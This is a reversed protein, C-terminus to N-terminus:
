IYFKEMISIRKNQFLSKVSEAGLCFYIFSIPTPSKPEITSAKNQIPRFNAPAYQNNIRQQQQQVFGRAVPENRAAEVRAAQPNRNVQVRDVFRALSTLTPTSMTTNPPRVFDDVEFGLLYAFSLEVNTLGYIINSPPPNRSSRGRQNNYQQQQEQVRIRPAPEHRAAEARAAPPNRNVEVRDIQPYDARGRQNNYQQQQQQVRIRPAPEQRAAEARAAPPNRNVEVRDIQPLDTPKKLNEKPQGGM